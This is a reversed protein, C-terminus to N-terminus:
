VFYLFKLYIEVGFLKLPAEKLKDYESQLTILEKRLKDCLTRYKESLHFADIQGQKLQEYRKKSIWM